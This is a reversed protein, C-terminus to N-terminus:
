SLHCGQEHVGLAMYIDGFRVVKGSRSFKTLNIVEM